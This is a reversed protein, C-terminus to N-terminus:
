GVTHRLAQRATALTHDDAGPPRRRAGGAEPTSQGRSEGALQAGCECFAITSREENSKAVCRFGTLPANAFRKWLTEV